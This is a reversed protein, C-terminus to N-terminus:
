CKFVSNTPKVFMIQLDYRGGRISQQHTAEIIVIWKDKHCDLGGRLCEACM